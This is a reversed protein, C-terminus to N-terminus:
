LRNKKIHDVISLRDIKNQRGKRPIIMKFIHDPLAERDICYAGQKLLSQINDINLGTGELALYVREDHIVEDYVGVMAAEEVGHIHKITNEYLAPYINMNRRIIMEKKRGLLILNGQGDIEGLDGTGHWEKGKKEHFYRSFLQDSKVMIEGDGAIKVSVGAVPKGVLDGKGEYVAKRCGDVTAILLNETMGYICTIQTYFPLVAILRKLFQAHVPASGILVQRLSQPLKGENIECYQILPLYDSPPGFLIGIKELVIWRIFSAASIDRKILKVPIGSAIGLLMFHPLNTGVIVNQDAILLNKLAKISAELSEGTHLVGKPVSLTGSTYIIISESIAGDPLPEPLHAIGKYLDRFFIHKRFIPFKSGVAILRVGPLISIQPFKIGIRPLVWNLLPHERVLLLRSDIFMWKPQLQQMKAAYNERGMEPDIIAIKGQLMIVAHMIELFEEGPETAIVAMDNQHFGRVALGSAVSISRNFIEGATIKRNNKYLVVFDPNSQALESLSQLLPNYEPM